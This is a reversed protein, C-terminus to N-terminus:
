NGEGFANAALTAMLHVISAANTEIADTGKLVVHPFDVPAFIWESNDIALLRKQPLEQSNSIYNPSKGKFFHGKRQNIRQAAEDETTDVLVWQAAPFRTRFTDRLDKNVFSFSIISVWYKDNVCDQIAEYNQDVFECCSLAFAQREHLTPYIGNAFNDRMWKPVCVDLDLALCQLQPQHKTLMEVAATAITSKGSGPRGFVVLTPIITSEQNM